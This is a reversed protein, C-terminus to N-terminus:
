VASKRKKQPPDESLRPNRMYATGWFWLLSRSSWNLLLRWIWRKSRICGTADILVIDPLKANKNIIQTIAGLSGEYFCETFVWCHCCLLKGPNEWMLRGPVFPLSVEAKCIWVYKHVFKHERYVAPSPCRLIFVNFSVSVTQCYCSRIQLVM